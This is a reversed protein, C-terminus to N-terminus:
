AANGFNLYQAVTSCTYSMPDLGLPSRDVDTSVKVECICVVEWMLGVNM